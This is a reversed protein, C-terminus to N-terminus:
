FTVEFMNTCHANIIFVSVFHIQNLVFCLRGWLVKPTARHLEIYLSPCYILVIHGNRATNTVMVSKYPAWVIVVFASNWVNICCLTNVFIERLYKGGFIIIM